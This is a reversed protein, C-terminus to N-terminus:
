IPCLELAAHKKQNGDPVGDSDFWTVYIWERTGHFDTYQEMGTIRGRAFSDPKRDEPVVLRVFDGLNM